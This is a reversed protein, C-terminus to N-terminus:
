KSEVNLLATLFQHIDRNTPIIATTTPTIHMNVGNVVNAAIVRRNTKENKAPPIESITNAIDLLFEMCLQPHVSAIPIISKNNAINKSALKSIAGSM